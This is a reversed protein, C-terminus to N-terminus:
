GVKLDKHHFDIINDKLIKEALENGDTYINRDVNDALTINSGQGQKIIANHRPDIKHAEEVTVNKEVVEFLSRDIAEDLEKLHKQLSQYVAVNSKFLGSKAILGKSNEDIAGYKDQM